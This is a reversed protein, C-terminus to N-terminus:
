KKVGYYKNGVYVGSKGLGYGILLSSSAIAMGVSKDKEGIPVSAVAGGLIIGVGLGFLLKDLRM